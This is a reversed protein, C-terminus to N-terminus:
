LVQRDTIVIFQWAQENSASPASMAAELLQHVVEDPVPQATYHRISRRTLLAEMADM